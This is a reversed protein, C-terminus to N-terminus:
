NGSIPLSTISGGNPAADTPNLPNGLVVTANVIGDDQILNLPVRILATNQSVEMLVAGVQVSGFGVIRYMLITQTGPDYTGLDLCFEVGMQSTYPSQLDFFTVSGTEPNQDVDLEVFGFVGDEPTAPPPDECPDPCPIFPDALSLSLLLESDTRLASFEVIDLGPGDVEFTDGVPDTHVGMSKAARPNVPNAEYLTDVSVSVLGGGALGTNVVEGREAIVVTDNGVLSSDRPVFTMAAPLGVAPWQQVITDGVRLLRLQNSSNSGVLLHAAQGCSQGRRNLLLVSAAGDVDPALVETAGGLLQFRLVQGAGADSLLFDGSCPDFAVGSIGARQLVQFPATGNEDLGSVRDPEINAGPVLTLGNDDAVLINGADSDWAMGILNQFGATVVRSALNQPDFRIISDATGLLLCEIGDFATYTLLSRVDGPVMALQNAGAATIEWISSSQGGGQPNASVAGQGTVRAAYIRDGAASYVMAQVGSLSPDFAERELVDATAAAVLEQSSDEATVVVLGEPASSPATYLGTQDITGTGEGSVMWGSIAAGNEDSTSFQLTDDPGLVVFDPNVSIRPLAEDPRYSEPVDQTPINSLVRGDAKGFLSTLYLPSNSRIWIIGGAQGLAEPIFQEILRSVRQGPELIGDFSGLLEGTAKAATIRYSAAVAGPNLAAVGTFFGLTTAIHAILARTQPTVQVAVAAKSGGAPIGYSVFGTLSPQSSEVEIWGDLAQDGSFGFLEEVDARFPLESEIQRVVRNQAVQPASYPEGNPQFATFVATVANLSRNVVGIEMKWPGLVALQPFFLRDLKENGNRANLGVADRGTERVVEFGLIRTNALAILYTSSGVDNIGFLTGVDVRRVGHAEVDHLTVRLVDNNPDNDQAAAEDVLLLDIEAPLDQTNVLNLETSTSANVEISNFVVRTEPEPLDAGDLFTGAEDLFLYFGAIGDVASTATFWGVTDAALGQGFIDTALLGVQQQAPVMLHAPNTIGAGSVMTGNQTYSVLELQADQATPNVFTVGLITGAQNTLRPFYLQSEAQLRGAGAIVLFGWTLVRLWTKNLHM